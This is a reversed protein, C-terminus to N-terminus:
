RTRGNRKFIEKKGSRIKFTQPSPTPDNSDAPYRHIAEVLKNYYQTVDKRKISAVVEGLVALSRVIDTTAQRKAEEAKTVAILRKARSVAGLTAMDRYLSASFSVTKMADTMGARFIFQRKFEASKELQAIVWDSAMLGGCFFIKQTKTTAALTGTHAGLYANFFKFTKLAIPDGNKALEEIRESPVRQSKESPIVGDRFAHYVNTIGTGSVIHETVPVQGKKAYYKKLATLLIQNDRNDKEAQKVATATSIEGPKPNFDVHPMTSHGAESTYITRPHKRDQLILCTGLGTGPGILVLSGEKLNKQQESTSFVSRYQARTLEEVAWGQLAFDNVLRIHKFFPCQQRLKSTSAKWPTNTTLVEGNYEDINGAAGIVCLTPKKSKTSLYTSVAEEFSTFESCKYKADFDVNGKQGEEYLGFRVNTGGIDCILVIEKNVSQNM